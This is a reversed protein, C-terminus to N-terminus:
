QQGGLCNFKPDHFKMCANCRHLDPSPVYCDGVLMKGLITIDNNLKILEQENLRQRNNM